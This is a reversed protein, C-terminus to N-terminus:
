NPLTVEWEEIKNAIKNANDVLAKIRISVDEKEPSEAGIEDLLDRFYSWHAYCDYDFLEQGNASFTASLRYAQGFYRVADFTVAVGSLSKLQDFNQKTAQM